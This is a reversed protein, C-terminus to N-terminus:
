TGVQKDPKPVTSNRDRRQSVPPTRKRAAPKAQGNANGPKDAPRKEVPPTARVMDGGRIAGPDIGAAFDPGFIQRGDILAAEMKKYLEVLDNKLKYDVLILILATVIAVTELALLLKRTTDTTTEM